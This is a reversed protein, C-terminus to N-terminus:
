HPEDKMRLNVRIDICEISLQPMKHYLSSRAQFGECNAFAINASDVKMTKRIMKKESYNAIRNANEDNTMVASM